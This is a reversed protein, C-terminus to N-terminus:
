LIRYYSKILEITAKRARSWHGQSTRRAKECDGKQIYEFVKKHEETSKEMGLTPNSSLMRIYHLQHNILEISNRIIANDCMDCMTMHFEEDTMLWDVVSKEKNAREMKRIIPQLAGMGSKPMRECIIKVCMGELAEITEYANRIDNVSLRKVFSGRYPTKEIINEVQLRQLADRIPTRSVRLQEALEEESIRTGPLLKGKRIGDIVYRYVVESKRNVGQQNQKRIM